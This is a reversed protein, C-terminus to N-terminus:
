DAHELGEKLTQELDALASSQVQEWSKRLPKREQLIVQSVKRFSGDQMPIILYSAAKPTIIAGFEHLPLYIVNSGVETVVDNSLPYTSHTISSRLRGTQVRLITGSLNKKVQKELLLGIREMGRRLLDYFGRTAQAIMPSIEDQEIDIEIRMYPNRIEPPNASYGNPKM